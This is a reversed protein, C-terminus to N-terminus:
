GADAGQAGGESANLRAAATVTYDCGHWEGTDQWRWTFDIRAGPLLSETDLVAVHFRLGTEGTPDESISRWGNRGWHVVAPRPLAIALCAGPRWSSIAADPWWFNYRATRACGAYREWVARPRDVPHGLQRSVLLKVFEAHTWALPMASGTPCGPFLFRAPIANADWVQEPLMGGPSAMAAMAELFPLPDRGDSLEFHGREGTLLPWGRGIGTGDYAHGDAHEGYGDGAYRHWVPGNPTDSKLLGDIVRLSARITPDDASRLGLRVLQLCETGIQADGRVGGDEPRNRIPVLSHLAGPDTLVARPAVRVYHRGVGFRRGLDSNTATTWAEIHANWFDALDLVWDRAPPPLLAAGAVFAAICVALTFPNIGENEEWRDQATAPGTRAIYGLARCVMDEVEIGGLAEREDLAAALLVPFATEDLQVGQWFPTGGLWQNQYWHGDPTQTAILYRLTDRAENDAGLALLAGACEVLDRPWVLHYGGRENGTDGWPVSLSAVMAGPYTKDLHARLVVTSVLFEDRVSTPVDLPAAWRESRQAQWAEWEAIQQQLINDFPQLLSSIALAAASEGSSGFGLALVAARPL